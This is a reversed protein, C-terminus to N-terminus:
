EQNELPIIVPEEVGLVDLAAELESATRGLHKVARRISGTRTPFASADGLMLSTQAIKINILGFQLNDVLLANYESPDLETEFPGPVQTGVNFADCKTNFSRKM